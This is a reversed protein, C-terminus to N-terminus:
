RQSVPVELPPADEELSHELDRRLGPHVRFLYAIMAVGGAINGLMINFWALRGIVSGLHLMSSLWWLGLEFMSLLLLLGFLLSPETRAFKVTEAILFGVLIFVLYHVVGFVALLAATGPAGTEPGFLRLVGRGLIVPTHFLPQAAAADMLVVWAVVVSAGLVGMWLSERLVVHPVAVFDHVRQRVLLANRRWILALLVGLLGLPVWLGPQGSVWQTFTAPIMMLALLAAALASAAPILLGVAAGLQALGVVVRIGTPFESLTAAPMAVVTVGVVKAIGITAFLVALATSLVWLFRAEAGISRQPM